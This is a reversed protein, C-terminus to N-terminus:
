PEEQRSLKAKAEQQELYECLRLSFERHYTVVQDATIEPAPRVRYKEPQAGWAPACIDWWEVKSADRSINIQITEGAAHAAKLEAFPDEDKSKVRYFTDPLWQPPGISPRWECLPSHAWEIEAGDAWAKICDAHKHRAMMEGCARIENHNRRDYIITNEM